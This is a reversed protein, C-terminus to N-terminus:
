EYINGSLVTLPSVNIWQEEEPKDVNPKQTMECFRQLALVKREMEGWEVKKDKVNFSLYFHVILLLIVRHKSVGGCQSRGVCGIM